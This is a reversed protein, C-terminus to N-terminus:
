RASKSVKTPHKVEELATQLAFAAQKGGQLHLCLLTSGGAMQRASIDAHPHDARGPYIVRAVKPHDALLDAIRAANETQQRIRLPLTEVGKLLTWANFPSM